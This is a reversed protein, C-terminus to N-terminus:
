RHAGVAHHWAILATLQQRCATYREANATHNDLLQQRSVGSNVDADDAPGASASADAAVGAAAPLEPDLAHNWLRVAGRTFVLDPQAILPAGPRERYVTVVHPVEKTITKYVTEVRAKSVALKAAIADGRAQAAALKQVAATQAQAQVVADAQSQHRMGLWYPGGILVILLAVAFIFELLKGGVKGLRDALWAAIGAFM